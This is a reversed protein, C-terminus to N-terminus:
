SSCNGLFCWGFIRQWWRFKSKTEGPCWGLQALLYGTRSILDSEQQTVDGDASCEQIIAAYHQAHASRRQGDTLKGGLKRLARIEPKTLVGDELAESLRARYNELDTRQAESMRSPSEGFDFATAEGTHITVPTRPSFTQKTEIAESIRDVRFNRWCPKDLRPKVQWTLVILQGQGNYSLSYPEM